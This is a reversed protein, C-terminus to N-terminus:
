KLAFSARRIPTAASAREVLLLSISLVSFLPRRGDSAPPESATVVSVMGKTMFMTPRSSVSALRM